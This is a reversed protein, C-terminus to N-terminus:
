RKKECKFPVFLELCFVCVFFGLWGFGFCCAPPYPLIQQVVSRSMTKVSTTFHSIETAHAAKQAHMSLPHATVYMHPLSHM